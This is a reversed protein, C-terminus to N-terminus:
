AAKAQATAKPELQPYTLTKGTEAVAGQAQLLSLVKHAVVNDGPVAGIQSRILALLAPQRAPLNGPMKALSALVKRVMQAPTVPKQLIERVAPKVAAKKKVAIKPAAALKSAPALVVNGVSKKATKKKVPAAKLSAQAASPCPPYSVGDGKLTLWQQARLQALAHAVRPSNASPEGLQAKIVALLVGRHAPRDSPKMQQLCRVLAQVEHRSAKDPVPNSPASVSAAQVPAKPAGTTHAKSQSPAARAAVGAQVQPKAVLAQAPLVAGAGPAMAPVVNTIVAQTQRVVERQFAQRRHAFGLLRAHELMPDYGADNSVVVFSADQQRASIYGIYYTLHFDLANKGARASPVLTVRSAEYEAAFRASDVKQSPGHFLWVDTGEPVLAKLDAGKPQVNEWDVLLHVKPGPTPGVVPAPPPHKPPHKIANKRLKHEVAEALDVGTHDALQLLYLLVDAMEDGVRERDHPDQTFTHSQATTLWQFLELLEAAEVMLAMALNKPSHFPPWDREVAFTRLRAQLAKLDM